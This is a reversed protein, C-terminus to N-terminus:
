TMSFFQEALRWCPNFREEEEEELHSMAKNASEYWNWCVADEDMIRM